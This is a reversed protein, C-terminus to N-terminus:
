SARVGSEVIIEALVDENKHGMVHVGGAGEIGAVARITEICVRKAEAKQDAAAAIRALLAEPVHVGPVHVSMWKPAKANAPYRTTASPKSPRAFHRVSNRQGPRAQKLAIPLAKEIIIRIDNMHAAFQKRSGAGFKKEYQEIFSLALKRSPLNAPM